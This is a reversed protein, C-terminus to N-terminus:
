GAVGEDSFIPGEEAIDALIRGREEEEFEEITQQSDITQPPPPPIEGYEVELIEIKDIGMIWDFRESHIHVVNGTSKVEPRTETFIEKKGGDVTKFITRWQGRGGYNMPPQAAVYQHQQDQVPPRYTSRQARRQPPPENMLDTVDKGAIPM